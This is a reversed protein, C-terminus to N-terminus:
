ILFSTAFFLSRKEKAPMWHKLESVKLELVKGSGNTTRDVTDDHIVVIQNDKIKHVDLEIAVVGKGASRFGLMTNEPEEDRCGRHGMVKM